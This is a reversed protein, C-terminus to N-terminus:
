LPSTAPRRWHRRLAPKEDPNPSPNRRRPPAGIRVLYNQGQVSRIPACMLQQDVLAMRGKLAKMAQIYDTCVQHGLGRSGSHIMVCVQGAGHLGMAAAADDDYIQEVRQVECYHNGAGLTGVQTRGREKARASVRDPDAGAVCGREEVHDRDRDTAFGNAVAWAMGSALIDDLDGSTLTVTSRRGVGVPILEYLKATLADLVGAIEEVQVNTRILRVGCCIDFGVGGPSVVAEPDDMDMAAVNGIAFGYGAHCDPLGISERVIGPLTAVNAIQRLAPLFGGGGGGGESEVQGRLENLLMPRIADNAYFVGPVRMNPVFGKRIRNVVGGPGEALDLYALEDAYTRRSM